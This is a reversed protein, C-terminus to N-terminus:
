SRRFGSIGASDWARFLKDVGGYQPLTQVSERFDGAATILLGQKYLRTELTIRVLRLLISYLCPLIQILNDQTQYNM